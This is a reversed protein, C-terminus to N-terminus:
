QVEEITFGDITVPQGPTAAKSVKGFEALPNALARIAERGQKPSMDRDAVADAIEGMKIQYQTIGRMTDLIMKNGGPQNILRPLSQKFLALDADSMPGSGPQRQQPVLENILAQAAQIDSLGETNIGYEGAAQKLAGVAGQPAAAMLGELRDIQALKGRGRLGEDSLASFTEANKKDLNEYFKDGEGVNTVVSTAGAKKGQLRWDNYPLPPRGAAREGAEYYQYEKVDAPLDPAKEGGAAIKNGQADYRIQGEGLTFGEEEKRKLADIQARKYETDLAANPDLRQGLLSQIINQQTPNMWENGAAGMLMQLDPGGQADRTIAGSSGGAMVPLNPDQEQAVHQQPDSVPQAPQGGGLAQTIQQMPQPSGGIPQKNLMQAIVRQGAPTTAAPGGPTDGPVVSPQGGQPAGALAQAM